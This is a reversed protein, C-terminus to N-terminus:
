AAGASTLAKGKAKYAAEVDKNAFAAQNEAWIKKLADVDKCANIQAVVPHEAPPASSAAAAAAGWSGARQQSVPIAGAAAANGGGHAISTVMVVLENLTLDKVAEPDLGFYSVIDIGISEVSGTFM